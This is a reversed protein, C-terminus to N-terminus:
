DYNLCNAAAPVLQWFVSRSCNQCNTRSLHVSNQASSISIYNRITSLCFQTRLAFCHKLVKSVFPWFSAFLWLTKKRGWSEDSLKTSENMKLNQGLRFNAPPSSSILECLLLISTSLPSTRQPQTHSPTSNTDCSSLKKSFLSFVM